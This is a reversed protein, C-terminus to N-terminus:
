HPPITPLDNAVHPPITPLDYTVHPPITPLDRASLASASALAAFAFLSLFVGKALKM